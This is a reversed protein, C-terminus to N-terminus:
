SQKKQWSSRDAKRCSRRRSRRRKREVRMQMTPRLIVQITGLRFVMRTAEKKGRWKPSGATANSWNTRSSGSRQDPLCSQEQWRPNIFSLRQRNRFGTSELYTAKKKKNSTQIIISSITSYNNSQAWLNSNEIQYRSSAETKFAGFQVCFRVKQALTRISRARRVISAISILNPLMRFLNSSSCGNCKVRQYVYNFSQGPIRSNEVRWYIWGSVFHSRHRVISLPLRRGPFTETDINVREQSVFTSYRPAYSRTFADHTKRIKGSPEGNDM